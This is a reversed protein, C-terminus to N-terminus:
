LHSAIKKSSQNALKANITRQLKFGERTYFNATLSIFPEQWCPRIRRSLSGLNNINIRNRKRDINWCWCIAWRRRNQFERILICSVRVCTSCSVHLQYIAFQLALHETSRVDCYILIDMSFHYWCFSCDLVGTVAGRLRRYVVWRVWVPSPFCIVPGNELGV